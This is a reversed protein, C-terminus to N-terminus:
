IQMFDSVEHQSAVSVPISSFKIEALANMVTERALRATNCDESLHALVISKLRSSAAQVLLEAADENSLHGSRGSIRQILSWPRQSQRLMEVDHNSELVVMDCNQLKNVALATIQGIDTVIGIRSSGDDLVFGVTDSADHPVTFPEIQLDGIEFPSSSDFINFEIDALKRDHVEMAAATKENAYLEADLKGALVRAGRCHDSHDHTFLVSKIKEKPIRALGIRKLSERATLGADILLSTGGGNIYICNGKSGSALICIEM